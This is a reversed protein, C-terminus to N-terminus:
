EEGYGKASPPALQGRLAKICSLNVEAKRKAAASYLPRFSVYGGLVLRTMMRTIICTLLFTGNSSGFVSFM